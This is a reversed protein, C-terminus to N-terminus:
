AAQTRSTREAYARAVIYSAVFLDFGICFVPIFAPVFSPARTGLHLGADWGVHAAWGVALWVPSARLGLWVFLSYLLVGLIELALWGISAGGALAFGVYLLATIILGIAFVVREGRPGRWRAYLVLIAAFVVGLAIQLILPVGIVAPGGVGAPAGDARPM